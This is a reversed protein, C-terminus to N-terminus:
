GTRPMSWGVGDSQRGVLPSQLPYSYEEQPHSTTQLRMHQGMIGEGTELTYIVGMFFVATTLSVALVLHLLRIDRRTPIVHACYSMVVWLEAASLCFAM